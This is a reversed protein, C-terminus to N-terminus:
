LQAAGGRCTGARGASASRAPSTAGGRTGALIRWPCGRGARGALTLARELRAGGQEARGPGTRWPRAGAGAGHDVRRVSRGRRPRGMWAVGPAAGRGSMDGGPGRERGDEVRDPAEVVIGNPESAGQAQAVPRALVGGALAGLGLMSLRRLGARGAWHLAGAAARARSAIEAVRGGAGEAELGAPEAGAGPWGARRGEGPGTGASGHPCAACRRRRWGAPFPRPPGAARTGARHHGYVGPGVCEGARWPVPCTLPGAPARRPASRPSAPPQLPHAPLEVETVRGWGPLARPRRGDPSAAQVTPLAGAKVAGHACHAPSPDGAGNCSAWPEAPGDPRRGERRGTREPAAPARQGAEPRSCSGPPVHRSTM